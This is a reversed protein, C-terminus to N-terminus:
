AFCTPASGHFEVMEGFAAMVDLPEGLQGGRVEAYARVLNGVLRESDLLEGFEGLETARALELPTLGAAFGDAALRQIWRLYRATDDLLEAGGVRGHGGVIVQPKLARLREVADLSGQVSGMLAFPTAGNMVVDGAFLVRPGPLWVVIDNTTHAPGVHVLEIEHGGQHLTLRKPFTLDPLRLEIEGWEVDPWLQQLALGGAALETRALDHAVISTEPGFVCNGFCHDGHHHTNVLTTAERASLKAVTDHLLRARRVTAATDVVVTSDGGVIIGSNNLCWGGDLQVYAFVGDGLDEM